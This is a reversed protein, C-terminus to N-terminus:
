GLVNKNPVNLREYGDKPMYCFTSGTDLLAFVNTEDDLRTVIYFSNNLKSLNSSSQCNTLLLLIVLCYQRITIKIFYFLIFM